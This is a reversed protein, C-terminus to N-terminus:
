TCKLEFVHLVIVVNLSPNLLDVFLQQLEL